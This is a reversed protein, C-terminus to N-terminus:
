ESDWTAAFEADRGLLFMYVVDRLADWDRAVLTVLQGGARPWATVRFEACADVEWGARDFMQRLIVEMTRAKNARAILEDSM